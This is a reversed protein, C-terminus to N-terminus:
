WPLSMRRDPFTSFMGFAADPSPSRRRTHALWTTGTSTVDSDSMRLLMSQPQATSTMPMQTRSESVQRGFAANGRIVPKVSLNEGIEPAEEPTFVLSSLATKRRLASRVFANKRFGTEALTLAKEPSKAGKTLLARVYNGIVRKEYLALLCALLIGFFLAWIVIGLSQGKSQKVLESFYQFVKM